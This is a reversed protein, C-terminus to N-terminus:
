IGLKALIKYKQEITLPFLYREISRSLPDFLYFFSAQMRKRVFLFDFDISL